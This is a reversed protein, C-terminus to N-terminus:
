HLIPPKEDAAQSSLATLQEQAMDHLAHAQEVMHPPHSNLTITVPAIGSFRVVKSVAMHGHPLRLLWAALRLVRLGCRVRFETMRRRQKNGLVTNSLEGPIM